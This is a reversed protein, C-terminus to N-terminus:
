FESNYLDIREQAYADGLDIILDTLKELKSKDQILKALMLDLQTAIDKVESEANSYHNSLYGQNEDDMGENALQDDELVPRKYTGYDDTEKLLPNDKLYSDFNFKM